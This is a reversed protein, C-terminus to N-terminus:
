IICPFYDIDAVFSVHRINVILLPKREDFNSVM